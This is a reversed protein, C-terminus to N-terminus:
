VDHHLVGLLTGAGRSPRPANVVMSTANSPLCLVGSGVLIQSGDMHFVQGMSSDMSMLHEDAVRGGSSSVLGSSSSDNLDFLNSLLQSIEQTGCHKDDM